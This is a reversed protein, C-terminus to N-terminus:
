LRNENYARRLLRASKILRLETVVLEALYRLMQREDRNLSRPLTDIVCVSGLHVGPQYIIPAGAYFRIHPAGTVFPNAKYRSDTAADQVVLVDSSKITENCFATNRPSSFLKMGFASKIWQADSGIFSVLTVPVRFYLAAIHTIRDFNASPESYLIDFEALVRLREDENEIM